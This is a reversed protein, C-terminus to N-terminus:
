VKTNGNETYSTWDGNNPCYSINYSTIFRDTILGPGQTSLGTIVMDTGLDVQVYPIIGATLGHWGGSLKVRHLRALSPYANLFSNTGNIASDPISGSNM